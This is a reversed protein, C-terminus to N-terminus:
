VSKGLLVGHFQSLGRIKVCEAADCAVAGVAAALFPIDLNVAFFGGQVAGKRTIQAVSEPVNKMVLVTLGDHGDDVSATGHPAGIAQTLNLRLQSFIGEALGAPFEGPQGM